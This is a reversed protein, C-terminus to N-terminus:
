ILHIKEKRQTHRINNFHKGVITLVMLVKGVILHTTVNKYTIALVLKGLVSGEYMCVYPLVCQKNESIYSSSNMWNYM